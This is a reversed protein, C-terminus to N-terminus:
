GSFIGPLRPFHEFPDARAMVQRNHDAAGAEIQARQELSEKGTGPSGLFQPIAKALPCGAPSGVIKMSNKEAQILGGSRFNMGIVCGLQNAGDLHAQSRALFHAFEPLVLAFREAAEANQSDAEIGIAIREVAADVQTCM